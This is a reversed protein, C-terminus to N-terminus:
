DRHDSPQVVTAGEELNQKGRARQREATETGLVRRRDSVADAEIRPRGAIMDMRAAPDLVREFRRGPIGDILGDVHVGSGIPWGDAPLREDPEVGSM